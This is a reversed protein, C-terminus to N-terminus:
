PSKPHPGPLPASGPADPRAGGSTGAGSRAGRGSRENREVPKTSLVYKEFYRVAVAILVALATSVVALAYLGTGCAVGIAGALWMGAGTTLGMVDGRAAIIMGGALFAVGATVAEIIRIPDAGLMPGESVKDRIEFTVITFLAAAIGTLMHTRLGAPKERLQPGLGIVGALMAAALLRLVSELDPLLHFDTLPPEERQFRGM